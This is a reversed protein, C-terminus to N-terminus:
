LGNSTANLKSTMCWQKLSLGTGGAEEPRSSARLGADPSLTVACEDASDLTDPLLARGSPVGALHVPM